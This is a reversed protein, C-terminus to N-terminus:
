TIDWNTFFRGAICSVRTEYVQTLFIQWRIVCFTTSYFSMNEDEGTLVGFHCSVASCGNVPSHQIGGFFSVGCGLSCSFGWCSQILPSIVNLVFSWVQWLCEFPEFLVKYTDSGLSGWLSQSSRGKLTQTDWASTHTLLLWCCLCPSQTCSGLDCLKHFLGEQLLDGDVGGYLQQASGM